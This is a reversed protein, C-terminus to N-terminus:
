LSRLESRSQSKWRASQQRRHAPATQAAEVSRQFMARADADRNLRKYTQGLWYLGEPDYERRDVYKELQALALDTNGLEFNTAGLDRWVESSCHKDDLAVCRQFLPLADQHRGQERAIRGLQYIPDPETPDIERAKEFRPIAETYNRRQQYILGLQYQADSDR